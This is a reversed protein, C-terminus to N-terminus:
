PLEMNLTELIVTVVKDRERKNEGGSVIVTFEGDTLFNPQSGLHWRTSPRKPPVPTPMWPMGKVVVNFRETIVEGSPSVMLVNGLPDGDKITPERDTIWNVM